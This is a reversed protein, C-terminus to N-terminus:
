IDISPTIKKLIDLQEKHIRKKADQFTVFGAWDVEKMQLMNKPVMDSILGIDALNDIHYIFYEIIKGSKYQIFNSVKLASPSIHIGTEEFTERSATQRPNEGKEVGGKPISYSGWWKSNTPHVLLIKSNNLIVAIGCSKDVDLYFYNDKM